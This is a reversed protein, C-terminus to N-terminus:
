LAFEVKSLFITLLEISDFCGSDGDGRRSTAVASRLLGGWGCRGLRFAEMRCIMMLLTVAM